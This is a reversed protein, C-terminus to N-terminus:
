LVEIRPSSTFELATISRLNKLLFHSLLTEPKVSGQYRSRPYLFNHLDTM